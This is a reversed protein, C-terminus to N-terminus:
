VKEQNKVNASQDIKIDESYQVLDISCNPGITVNRGKVEPATVNELYIKDGEISGDVSFMQSKSMFGFLHKQINPKISISSGGVAGACSSASFRIDITEANIIGHCNITGSVQLKEAEIDGTISAGGSIKVDGSKFEHCKIGGSAYLSEAKFSSCEIAGSVSTDGASINGQAKLAGSVKMSGSCTIDADGKASGSCHFEQCRINGGMRCSGAIHVKEYEGTSIVGSGSISINM